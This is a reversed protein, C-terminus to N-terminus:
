FREKFAELTLYNFKDSVSKTNILYLPIKIKPILWEIIQLAYSLKKLKIPNALYSKEHNPKSFKGVINNFDMGILYLEQQPLLLSVIFAIIRDGDTFGGPNILNYSSEAQTTGIINACNIITNKFHELLLINDGHAHVIIFKANLFDKKTIGDLDTIIGDIPIIKKNLLRAAGDAALNVCSNFFNKGLNNLVFDVSEELSPGCGFVCIREKKQINEKFSLLIEELNYTYPKKELIRSLLDRAERDKQIDFNFDDIIKHYWAKFEIYSEIQTKLSNKM